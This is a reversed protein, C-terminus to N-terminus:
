GLESPVKERERALFVGLEGTSQPQSMVLWYNRRRNLAVHRYCHAKAVRSKFPLKSDVISLWARGLPGSVAM